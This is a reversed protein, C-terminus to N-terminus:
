FSLDAILQRGGINLDVADVTKAQLLDMHTPFTAEVYTVDAPDTDNEM